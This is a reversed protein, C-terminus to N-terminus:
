FSGLYICFSILELPCQSLFHMKDRLKNELEVEFCQQHHILKVVPLVSSLLSQLYKLKQLVPKGHIRVKISNDSHFCLKCNCSGCCAPCIRQLEEVPIDHYWTSICSDCYGRRDCKLCWTVRDRDNEQCQHCIQGGNDESSNTSGDSYETTANADFSTQSRKRSSDMGSVSPSEYSMWNDEFQPADEESDDDRKPINFASLSRLNVAEPRYRFQNKSVKELYKGSSPKPNEIKMSSLPVDIEDNKSELYIDSEGLSKGKAKKLNARM